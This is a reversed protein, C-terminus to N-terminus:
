LLPSTERMTSSTPSQSDSIPLRAPLCAPWDLQTAESCFFFSLSCKGCRNELGIVATDHKGDLFGTGVSRSRVVGSGLAAVRVRACWSTRVFLCRCACGFWWDMGVVHGVLCFCKVKRYPYISEPVIGGNESIYDMSLSPWGGNCGQNWQTDCAVLQQESLPELPHGM